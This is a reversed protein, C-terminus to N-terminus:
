IGKKLLNIIKNVVKIPNKKVEHEWIRLVTWGAKRLQINNKYDRKKNQLIKNKWFKTNTEPTKYHMPCHHWFCGDIFIAINNAPFVIDPKGRLGYEIRYRFGKQWLLKRVSVEPKTNRNKVQSMCYSRQKKTLVDAM